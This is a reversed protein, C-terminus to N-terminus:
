AAHTVHNPHIWDHCPACVILTKRRMRAMLAAWAPQGPGPKGLQSLGAVQHVAVTAGHECLECWRRRLRHILERRPPHVPVPAPDTIVARRDQRLIIGGFRAVLDRKGERRLRAEFCARPGDSTTVKAQHRAAMKTVSSRHRAALTKLMSTLAPWHLIHLRWVDQALLYYNVVGAYEAGYIRVIDYDDLNLLRPRHWPKGHQRYRACQAKVVDPPVRLAIKGNAARRGGTRKTDCYQVIIDYGLFRAPTTRGHTMLQREWEPLAQDGTRQRDSDPRRQEATVAGPAVGPVTLAARMTGDIGPDQGDVVAVVITLAIGPLQDANEQDSVIVHLNRSRGSAGPASTCAARLTATTNADQQPGVVLATPIGLSAASVALQPGLALAHRDASLSRVALSSGSGARLDTPDVGAIGLQHLAKRLRWADVAGPEYDELLKMWGATNSPHRVGVSALVPVGIADAM